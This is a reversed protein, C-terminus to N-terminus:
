VALLRSAVSELATIEGDLQEFAIHQINNRGDRCTFGGDEPRHFGQIILARFRDIRQIDREIASIEMLASANRRDRMAVMTRLETMLKAMSPRTRAGVVRVDGMGERLLGIKAELSQELMTWACVLRGVGCLLAADEPAYGSVAKASVDSVLQVGVGWM